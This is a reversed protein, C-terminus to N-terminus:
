IEETKGNIDEECELGLALYWVANLIWKNKNKWEYAYVSTQASTLLYQLSCRHVWLGDLFWFLALLMGVWMSDKMKDAERGPVFIRFKIHRMRKPTKIEQLIAFSCAFFFLITYHRDTYEKASNM